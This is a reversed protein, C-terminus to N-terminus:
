IPYCSCTFWQHVHLYTLLYTLLRIQVCRVFFVTVRRQLETVESLVAGRIKTGILLDM